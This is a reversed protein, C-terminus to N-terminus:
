SNIKLQELVQSYSLVRNEEVDKQSTQISKMLEEDCLVEITELIEEVSKKPKALKEGTYSM